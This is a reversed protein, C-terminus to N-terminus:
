RVIVLRKNVVGENSQLSINYVGENLSSADISTKGNITQSLVMKGTVDYVQMSQKTESSPEIVFSGNNPNPYISIENNSSYEEIGAIDCNLLISVYDPFYNAVAIDPKTDGNFDASIISCDQYGVTYNFATTFNGTGDGILVSVNNSNAANATALDMKGDLNFDMAVISSPNTGVMFNTPASFHGTGDGILISVNNDVSNTVGLDVKGDGNFDANIASSPDSGVSFNLASAFGGAGNGLLISVIDAGQEVIALDIKGDGNFDSNIVFYPRISTAFYTPVGFSGTGNGLLISVINSTLITVALDAKGDSNFDASTVSCPAGSSTCVTYNINSTFTGTGSGLLVSVTTDGDNATVLDAKGDNNFDATAISTPVYDIKYNLATGFGGTGNGLIISVYGPVFNTTSILCAAAIDAKGDGNFDASVISQPFSDIVFRTFPTFCVQAKGDLCFALALLTILKKM